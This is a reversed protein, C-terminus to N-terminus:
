QGPTGVGTEDVHDVPCRFHSLGVPKMRDNPARMQNACVSWLEGVRQCTQVLEANRLDRRTVARAGTRGSGNSSSEFISEDVDTSAYL